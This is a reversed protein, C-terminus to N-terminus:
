LRASSRLLWARRAHAISNHLPRMTPVLRALLACRRKPRRPPPLWCPKTPTPLFAPIQIFAARLAPYCWTPARTLSANSATSRQRRVAENERLPSSLPSRPFSIPDQPRTRLTSRHFGDLLFRHLTLSPLLQFDQKATIYKIVDSVGCSRTKVIKGSEATRGWAVLAGNFGSSEGSPNKGHTFVYALQNSTGAIVNRSLVCPQTIADGSGPAVTAQSHHAGGLLKDASQHTKIRGRSKKDHSAGNGM